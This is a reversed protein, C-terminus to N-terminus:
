WDAPPYFFSLLLVVVVVVVGVVVYSSCLRPALRTASKEVLKQELQRPEMYQVYASVTRVGNDNLLM